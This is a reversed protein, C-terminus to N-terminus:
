FPLDSETESETQQLDGENVAEYGDFPIVNKTRTKTKPNGNEDLLPSGNDDKLEVEYTDQYTNIWVRKGILDDPALAANKGKTVVGLRSCVLKLRQQVKQNDSEFYINDWFPARGKYEGEAIEFNLNWRENGHRDTLTNGSQDTDKVEKCQCLYRGDPVPSFDEQDNIDDWNIKQEPM